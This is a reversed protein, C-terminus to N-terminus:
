IDILSQADNEYYIRPGIFNDFSHVFIIKQNSHCDQLHETTSLLEKQQNMETTTTEKAACLNDKVYTQFGKGQVLMEMYVWWILCACM